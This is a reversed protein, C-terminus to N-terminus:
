VFSNDRLGRSLVEEILVQRVRQMVGEWDGPYTQRFLRMSPYWPSDERELLWRWDPAFPLLAWVTKGIAGALHIVATDVSIVLDLSAIVAATDAFDKLERDLNVITMGEPPNLTELSATGKQLAYFTVGPIEALCAFNSLLCSRGSDRINHPNGAWVLGVKFFDNNDLRNQWETVLVPEATIYPVLSPITDLRTGFIGPLSMLPVHVDFTEHLGGSPVREVITKIGACERLLRYLSPYCEFVVRGGQSQIMPLYRVFQITDGLGQESHVLISRGDLPSGDWKSQKFTRLRYTKTNLRWEYEPWAEDFQGALLLAMSRNFHAEAYDPKLVIAKDFSKLAEYVMGLEQFVIGNNNHAEAYDPRLKIARKHIALAEDLRGHEKLTVGLNNLAEIYVPNFDIAKGYNELADDLRGQEKYLNALNYYAEAYHPRITIACKYNAVAEDFRNQKKLVTGLNNYTEAHDPKLTLGNRYIEVAENFKGQKQLVGGLTNYAEIYDPKLLITKMLLSAATELNGVQLQLTGLLFIVDAHVPETELITRYSREAAALDGNQHSKLANQFLDRTNKM